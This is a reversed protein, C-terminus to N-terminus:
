ICDFGEILAGDGLKTAKTERTLLREWKRPEEKTTIAESVNNNRLHWRSTDSIPSGQAM